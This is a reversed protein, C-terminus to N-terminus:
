RVISNFLNFGHLVIGKVTTCISLIKPHTRAPVDMKKPEFM